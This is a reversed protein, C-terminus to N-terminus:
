IIFPDSIHVCMEAPNCYNIAKDNGKNCWVKMSIYLNLMM